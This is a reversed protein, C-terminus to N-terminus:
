TGEKSWVVGCEAGVQNGAEIADCYQARTLTESSPRVSILGGHYGPVFRDAVAASVLVAKWAERRTTLTDGMSAGKYTPVQKALDAAMAHLKGRMEATPGDDSIVVVRGTRGGAVIRGLCERVWETAQIVQRSSVVERTAKM